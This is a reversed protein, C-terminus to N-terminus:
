DAENSIAKVAGVQLAACYSAASFLLNDQLYLLGYQYSLYTFRYLCFM